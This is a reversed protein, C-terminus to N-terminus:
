LLDALTKSGLLGRLMADAEVWVGHVNCTPRRSCWSPDAACVAVSLPRGDMAEVVDLLTTDEASRKLVLGGTVGRRAEVFGAAVLDRQVSRAFAYPVEGAEALARVSVPGGGSAALNLLMRIAYDTKRSIEM